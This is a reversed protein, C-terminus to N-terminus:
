KGAFQEILAAVESLVIITEQSIYNTPMVPEKGNGSVATIAFSKLVAFNEVPIEIGLQAVLDAAEALAEAPEEVSLSVVIDSSNEAKPVDLSLDIREMDLVFTDSMEQKERSLASLVVFYEKQSFSMDTFPISFNSVASLDIGFLQDAQELTMYVNDEGKPVVMELLGSRGVINERFANYIRSENVVDQSDSLYMEILAEEAGQHFIEIYIVDEWVTGKATLNYMISEEVGTIESLSEFIKTYETPLKEKNLEFEVEYTFHALDMKEQLVEASKWAPYFRMFLCGALILLLALIVLLVIKGKKM